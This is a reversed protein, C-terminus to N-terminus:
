ATVCRCLLRSVTCWPGPMSSVSSFTHLSLVLMDRSYSMPRHRILCTSIATCCDHRSLFNACPSLHHQLLVPGSAPAPQDIRSGNMSLLFLLTSFIEYPAIRLYHVSSYTQAVRANFQMLPILALAVCTIMAVRHTVRAVGKVSYVSRYLNRGSRLEMIRVVSLWLLM